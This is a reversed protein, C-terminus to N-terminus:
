CLSYNQSFIIEHQPDEIREILWPSVDFGGNALIAYGRAIQMPTLTASGLALSLNKPLENESFGFNKAYDIAKEHDQEKTIVDFHMTHGDAAKVYTDYVHIEM